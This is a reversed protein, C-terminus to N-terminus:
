KRRRAALPHACSPMRFLVIYHWMLGLFTSSARDTRTLHLPRSSLQTWDRRAGAGERGDTWKGFATSGARAPRAEGGECTRCSTHKPGLKQSCRLAVAPRRRRSADGTQGCSGRHRTGHRATGLGRGGDSGRRGSADHGTGGRQEAHRHIDRLCAAPRHWGLRHRNRRLAHFDFSRFEHM